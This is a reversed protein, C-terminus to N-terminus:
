GFRTVVQHVLGPMHRGLFAAFKGHGTFVFERKRRWIADVCVRGARDTPWMLRAPRPDPREPHYVGDNDVRAIESEVFGPELLTISAGSGALEQALSLALGRIAFKSATYPSTKPTAIVGSVSGTVAFRGKREVVHPWAARLTFVAGLVNVDMQRRWQEPTIDPFAGTVGMGANAVAVDLHGCEDIIRAATTDLAAADTVDVPMPLAQGGNDAIQAAVAELPESRRGSLVVQGGRAAFERAMAAGIGTGAGTIWIVQRSFQATSGM